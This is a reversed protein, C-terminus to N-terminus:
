QSTASAPNKMPCNIEIVSLKEMMGMPETLTMSPLTVQRIASNRTRATQRGCGTVDGYTVTEWM